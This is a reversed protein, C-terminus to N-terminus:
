TIAPLANGHGNATAGNAPPAPIPELILDPALVSALARLNRETRAQTEMISILTNNLTEINGEFKLIRTTVEAKVTEVDIDMARLMTRVMGEMASPKDKSM